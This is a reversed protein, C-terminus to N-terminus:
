ARRRGIFGLGALGLLLQLATGPEPVATVEGWITVNDWQPAGTTTGTGDFGLRFFIDEGSQGLVSRTIAEATTDIAESALANWSVGDTSWETTVTSSSGAGNTNAAFTISWDQAVSGVGLSLVSAQFVVSVDTIARMKLLVRFDQGTGANYNNAGVQLVGASADFAVDGVPSGNVPGTLNPVLSTGTTNVNAIGSILTSGNTGNMFLTGFPQSDGGAGFTPDFDSYNSRLTTTNAFTQDTALSGASFYQTFDWGAIMNPVAQAPGGAFLSAAFCVIAAVRLQQTMKTSGEKMTLPNNLKSYHFRSTERMSRATM